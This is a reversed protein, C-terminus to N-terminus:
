FASETYGYKVAWFAIKPKRNVKQICIETSIRFIIQLLHKTENKQNWRLAYSWYQFLLVMSIFRSIFRETVLSFQTDTNLSSVSPPRRVESFLFFLHIFIFLYIYLIFIRCLYVLLVFLIWFILFIFIVQSMEPDDSLLYVSYTTIFNARVDSGVRPQSSFIHPKQRKLKCFEKRVHDTGHHWFSHVFSAVSPRSTLSNKATYIKIKRYVNQQKGCGVAKSRKQTLQSVFM